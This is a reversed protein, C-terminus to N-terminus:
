CCNLRSNTLNNQTSTKRRSKLKISTSPRIKPLTWSYLCNFCKYTQLVYECLGTEVCVRQPCRQTQTLNQKEKLWSESTSQMWSRMANQTSITLRATTCYASRGLLACAKKRCFTHLALLERLSIRLLVGTSKIPNWHLINATLYTYNSQLSM